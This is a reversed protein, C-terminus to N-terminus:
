MTPAVSLFYSRLQRPSDGKMISIVEDTDYDDDDHYDYMDDNHADDVDNKIYDSISPVTNM